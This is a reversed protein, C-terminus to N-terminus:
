RETDANRDGAGILLSGPSNMTWPGTRASSRLEQLLEKSRPTTLERIAAFVGPQPLPSIDTKELWAM